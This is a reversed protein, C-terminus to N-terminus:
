EDEVGTDEKISTSQFLLVYFSKDVFAPGKLISFELYSTDRPIVYIDLDRGTESIICQWAAGEDKPDLFKRAFEEQVYRARHDVLNEIAWIADGIAERQFM